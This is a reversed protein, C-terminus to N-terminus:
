AQLLIMMSHVTMALAMMAMPHSRHVTVATGERGMMVGAVRVLLLAAARTVMPMALVQVLLLQVVLAAGLGLVVALLATAQAALLLAM